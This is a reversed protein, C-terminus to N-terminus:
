RDVGWRYEYRVYGYLGNTDFPARSSFVNGIATPNPNRGPENNLANRAGVALRSSGELRMAAELDVLTFGDYTWNDRADYWDGFYGLRALLDFRGVTHDVSLNWRIDPLAEEIERIRRNGLLEPNWAVVETETLNFALALRTRGGFAGPRWGAVLDLGQTRTKFDNAFFRFNALNAASTIGESLLQEVEAPRLAFLQTVGLRDDLDIRFLDATLTLSGREIVTGVAVNLSKEAELQKGGRLAAVRSTSPITGNNVLDMLEPAWQTSVNFANQQGPTPARFGTSISGRFALNGSVEIRGALKGNLAAGFDEYDEFRLAAALGWPGDGPGYEVDAYVAANARNWEGAAIPSFGPFGNSGASFGQAAYPGIRWSAAEGLGIRFGENRWELGGAM